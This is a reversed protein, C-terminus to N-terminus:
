DSNTSRLANLTSQLRDRYNSHCNVCGSHVIQYHRLIESMDQQRAAMAISDSHHHVVQDFQAFQSMEKGLKKAIASREEALAKPHHAIQTAATDIMGYQEYWIGRNIQEMNEMLGQMVELLPKEESKQTAEPQTLALGFGLLTMFLPILILIRGSGCRKSQFEKEINHWKIRM